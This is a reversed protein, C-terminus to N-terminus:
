NFKEFLDDDSRPDLIQDYVSRRSRLREILAEEERAHRDEDADEPTAHYKLGKPLTEVAM